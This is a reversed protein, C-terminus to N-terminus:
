LPVEPPPSGEEPTPTQNRELATIRTGLAKISRVIQTVAYYHARIAETLANINESNGEVEAAISAMREDVLKKVDEPSLEM